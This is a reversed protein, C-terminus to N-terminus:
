GKKNLKRSYKLENILYGKTLLEKKAKNKTKAEIFRSIHGEAAQGSYYYKVM